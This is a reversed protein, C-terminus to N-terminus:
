YKRSWNLVVWPRWSFMVWFNQLKPCTDWTDPSVVFVCWLVVGHPKTFWYAFNWFAGVTELSWCNCFQLPPYPTSCCSQDLWSPLIIFLWALPLLAYNMRSPPSLCLFLYIDLYCSNHFSFGLIKGFLKEQLNKRIYHEVDACFGLQCTQLALILLLVMAHILNQHILTKQSLRNTMEQFLGQTSKPVWATGTTNSLSSILVM